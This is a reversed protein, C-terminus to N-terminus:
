DKKTRYNSHQWFRYVKGSANREFVIEEGLTKDSRVRRFTDGSVHRIITMNEDPSPNPLALIVLDGYWPEILLESGWPQASYIGRFDDPKVNSKLEQKEKPIKAILERIERAFFEPSEGGANIMVTFAMKDKPDLQLTTRYGPCSGGHGVMTKDGQRSVSFGL